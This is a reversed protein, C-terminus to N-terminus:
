TPLPWVERLTPTLRLSSRQLWARNPLNSYLRGTVWTGITAPMSTVAVATTYLMAGQGRMDLLCVISNMTSRYHARWSSRM